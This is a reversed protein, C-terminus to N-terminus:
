GHASREISGDAGIAVVECPAGEVAADAFASLARRHEDRLMARCKAPDAEAAMTASLRDALAELTERLAILKTALEREVEAKRVLEGRLERERHEAISAEAVERRTKAGWFEEASSSGPADPVAGPAGGPAPSGSAKDNPRQARRRRRNTEFQARAGVPDLLGDPGATIRGSSVARSITSVAVGLKAALQSVTVGPM